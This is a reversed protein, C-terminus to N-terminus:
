NENVAIRSLEPTHIVEFLPGLHREFNKWRAVSCSYIPKRVQTVSATRVARGSDYFKLCAPDWPLELYELMRKAEREPEAVNDEYRVDLIRGPPLVKHWHKMLKSYRLYQRGLAKLDYSYEHGLTFRIAYCSFCTDMPDRLAHIIKAHPFMLHILGLHVHNGPMKDTIYRADPALKWIQDLYSQGIERLRLLAEKWNTINLTLLKAEKALEDLTTLEGAGYISPHSALIQEILTTGSRLMGVIFIPVREDQIPALTNKLDDSEKFLQATLFLCSKELFREDETEDFPHGQNHLRNGEEYASFSRDYQGINEMAKGMAFNLRIREELPLSERKAYATELHKLRPDDQQFTIYLLATVLPKASGPSLEIAKNLAIKAEEIKGRDMLVSGLNSYSDAFDPKVEIARRYCAEAEILRGMNFLVNGLNNHAEPYGSRIEISRRYSSEAENPRGLECLIVGLNNHAEFYNPKLEIARLCCNEAEDLRGLNRLVIGLNYHAEAYQPQIKLATKYSAEADELNGLSLLVTGLNNHAESSTPSFKIAQLYSAKAEDTRGLNQLIEGLHNHVNAFDPKINIVERYCAEAEGLRGQDRLTIGLNYHAEAYEQNHQLAQQFSAESESLCNLDRFVIGLNNHAETYDPSIQLAHQFSLKADDLKGIDHLALGLNNHIEASDQNFELARVFSAKAENIRGLYRYTLGLNNHAEAYDPKFQLAYKFSSEAENFSLRDLYIIGLNNHAEADDPKLKIAQIFNSQAEDLRGLLKLTMGLSNHAHHNEPSLAAANQMPILAETFREMKMLVAGLITWCFGFHPFKGTMSKAMAEAEHNRGESFLAAVTKLEQHSPSSINIVSAAKVSKVKHKKM